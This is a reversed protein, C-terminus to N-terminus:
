RAARGRELLKRSSDELQRYLEEVKRSEQPTLDKVHKAELQDARPQHQRGHKIPWPGQHPLPRADEANGSSVAIAGIVVTASVAVIRQLM